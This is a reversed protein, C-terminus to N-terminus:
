NILSLGMPVWTQAKIGLNKRLLKLQDDPEEQPRPLPWVASVLSHTHSTCVSVYAHRRRTYM